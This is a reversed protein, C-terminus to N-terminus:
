SYNEIVDKITKIRILYACCEYAAKKAAPMPSNILTEAWELATRDQQDELHYDAGAELLLTVIKPYGHICAAILATQGTKKCQANVNVEHFLLFNVMLDNGLKTALLLFNEDKTGQPNAREDIAQQAAILDNKVIASWLKTTAEKTFATTCEARTFTLALVTTTILAKRAFSPFTTQTAFTLFLLLTKKFNNM